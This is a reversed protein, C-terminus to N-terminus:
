NNNLRYIPKYDIEGTKENYGITESIESIKYDKMFAITKFSSLM